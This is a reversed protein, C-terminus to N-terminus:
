LFNYERPNFNKYYDIHIKRSTTLMKKEKNRFSKRTKLKKNYKQEGKNRSSGPVNNM